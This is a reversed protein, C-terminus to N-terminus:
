VHRGIDSHTPSASARRLLRFLGALGEDAGVVDSGPRTSEGGIDILDAGDEMMQKAHAVAREVNTYRGGDSFSDPTVNLIGMIQTREGLKLKAPGWAYNREYIVPTLTM